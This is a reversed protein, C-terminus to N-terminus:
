QSLPQSKPMCSGEKEAFLSNYYYLHTALATIKHLLM